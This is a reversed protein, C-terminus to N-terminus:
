LGDSLRKAITKTQKEDLSAAVILDVGSKMFSAVEYGERKLLVLQDAIMEGDHVRMFVSLPPQAGSQYILHLVKKGNIRCYRARVEAFGFESLDPTTKLRGNEGCLRDIQAPDSVTGKLKDLKEITCHDVHDEVIDAYVKENIFPAAGRLLFFAAVIVILLVAALRLVVPRRLWARLGRPQAAPGQRHDAVAEQRIMRLITDRLASHDAAASRATEKLGEDQKLFYALQVACLSCAELHRQVALTNRADLENDLYLQILEKVESCNM